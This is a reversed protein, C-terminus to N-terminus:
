WPGGGGGGLLLLSRPFDLEDFWARDHHPLPEPLFSPLFPDRHGLLFFVILTFM